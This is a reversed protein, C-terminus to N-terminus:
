LALRHHVADSLRRYAGMPRRLASVRMAPPPGRRLDAAPAGSLRRLAGPADTAAADGSAGAVRRRPRYIKVKRLFPSGSLFGHLFLSPPHHGIPFPFRHDFGLEDLLHHQFGPQGLL